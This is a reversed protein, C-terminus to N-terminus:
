EFDSDLVQPNVKELEEKLNTSSDFKFTKPAAPTSVPIPTPTPALSPASQSPFIKSLHPSILSGEQSRNGMLIIMLIVITITIIIFLLKKSM